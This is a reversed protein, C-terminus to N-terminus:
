RGSRAGLVVLDGPGVVAPDAEAQDGFGEALQAVGGGGGGLLGVLYFTHAQLGGVDRRRGGHGHVPLAEPLDHAIQEGVGQAVGGGTPVDGDAGGLLTRARDEDFDGIGTF